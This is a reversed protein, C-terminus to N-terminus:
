EQAHNDRIRKWAGTGTRVARLAKSTGTTQDFTFSYRYTERVTYTTGGETLLNTRYCTKSDLVSGGGTYKTEDKLSGDSAYNYFLVYTPVGFLYNTERVVYAEGTEEDVTDSYTTLLMGVQSGIASGNLSYNFPDAAGAAALIGATVLYAGDNAPDTPIAAGVTADYTNDAKLFVNGATNRSYQKLYYGENMDSDTSETEEEDVVTSGRLAHYLESAKRGSSDYFAAYEGTLDWAGSKYTFYQETRYKGYHALSTNKVYTCVQKKTEKMVGDSLARHVILTYCDKLDADYTVSYDTVLTGGKKVYTEAKTLRWISGTGYPVTEYTNLYYEALTRTAGEVEYVNTETNLGNADYTFEIEGVQGTTDYIRSRVTASQGAAGVPRMYDVTRTDFDNADGGDQELNCGAAPLLLACALIWGPGIGRKTKM